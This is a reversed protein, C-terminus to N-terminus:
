PTYVHVNVIGNGCNGRWVALATHSHDAYAARVGDRDTFADEKRFAAFREACKGGIHSNVTLYAHAGLTSGDGGTNIVAHRNAETCRAGKRTLIRYFNGAM